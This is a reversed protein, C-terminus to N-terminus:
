EYEEFHNCFTERDQYEQDAAYCIPGNDFTEAIFLLYSSPCEEITKGKHKGFTLVGNFEKPKKNKKRKFNSGRRKM